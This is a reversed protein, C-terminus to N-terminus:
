ISQPPLTLMDGNSFPQDPMQEAKHEPNFLWISASAPSSLGDVTLPIQKAELIMNIVM